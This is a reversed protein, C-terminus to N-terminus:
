GSYEELKAEVKQEAKRFLEEALQDITQGEAVEDEFAFDIRVGNFDGLNHTVGVAARVRAPAVQETWGRQIDDTLNGEDKWKGM